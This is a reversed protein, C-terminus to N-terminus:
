KNTAFAKWRLPNPPNGAPVTGFLIGALSSVVISVIASLGSIPVRYQTLFRLSYPIALGIVIGLGTLAFRTKQVRLTDYAFAWMSAWFLGADAHQPQSSLINWRYNFISDLAARFGCCTAFNLDRTGDPAPRCWDSRSCM